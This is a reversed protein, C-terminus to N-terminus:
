RDCAMQLGPRTLRARCRRIRDRHALPDLRAAVFSSSVLWWTSQSAAEPDVAPVLPMRGLIATGIPRTPEATLVLIIPGAGDATEASDM